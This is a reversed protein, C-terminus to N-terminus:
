KAAGVAVPRRDPRGRYEHGSGSSTFLFILLALLATKQKSSSGNPKQSIM